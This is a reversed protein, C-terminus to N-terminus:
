QIIDAKVQASKHGNVLQVTNIELNLTEKWNTIKPHLKDDAQKELVGRARWFPINCRHISTPLPRYYVRTSALSQPSGPVPPAFCLQFYENGIEPPCTSHLKNRAITTAMYSIIMENIEEKSRNPYLYKYRNFYFERQEPPINSQWGTACLDKYSQLQEYNSPEVKESEKFYKRFVPELKTVTDVYKDFDLLTSERFPTIFSTYGLVEILKEFGSLYNETCEHINPIEKELFWGTADEERLYFHVGKAYRTSIRNNLGSLTRLISLEAIDVGEGPVPKKPGMPILVQLPMDNKIFKETLKTMKAQIEENPYPTFRCKQTGIMERVLTTALSEGKIEEVPAVCDIEKIFISPVKHDQVGERINIDISAEKSNM